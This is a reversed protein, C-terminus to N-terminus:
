RSVCLLSRAVCWSNTRSRCYYITIKHAAVVLGGSSRRTPPVLVIKSPQQRWPLAPATQSVQVPQHGRHRPAQAPPLRPHRRPLIHRRQHAVQGVLVAPHDGLVGTVGRGALHLMREFRRLPVGHRRHGRDTAEDPPGAALLLVRCGPDESLRAALVCGASGAGVIVYDYV